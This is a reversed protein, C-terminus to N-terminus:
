LWKQFGCEGKVCSLPFILQWSSRDRLERWFFGQPCYCSYGDGEQLCSGGHLCPNTHCPNNEMLEDEFLFLTSHASM